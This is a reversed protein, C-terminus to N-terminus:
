QESKTRTKREVFQGIYYAILIPILTLGIYNEILGSKIIVSLVAATIVIFAIDIIIKKKSM